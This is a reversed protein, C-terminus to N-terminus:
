KMGLRSDIWFADKILPIEVSAQKHELDIKFDRCYIVNALFLFCLELLMHRGLVSLPTSRM